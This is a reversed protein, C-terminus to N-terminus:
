PEVNKRKEYEYDHPLYVPLASELENILNRRRGNMLWVQLGYLAYATGGFLAIVGSGFFGPLVVGFLLYFWGAILVPLSMLYLQMGRSLTVEGSVVTSNGGWDRLLGSALLHGYREQKRITFSYLAESEFYVSVRRANGLLFHGRQFREEVARVALPLPIGTDFEFAMPAFLDVFWRLPDTATTPKRKRREPAHTM